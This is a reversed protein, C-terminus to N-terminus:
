ALDCLRKENAIEVFSQAGELSDCISWCGVPLANPLNENEGGGGTGFTTIDFMGPAGGLADIATQLEYSANEEATIHRKKGVYVNYQNPQVANLGDLHASGNKYTPPLYYNPDYLCNFVNTKYNDLDAGTGNARLTQNGTPGLNNEDPGERPNCSRSEPALANNTIPDAVFNLPMCSNAGGNVNTLDLPCSHEDAAFAPNDLCPDVPSGTVYAEQTFNAGDPNNAAWVQCAKMVRFYEFQDDDGRENTRFNCQFGRYNPANGALADGPTVQLRRRNSAVLDEAHIM